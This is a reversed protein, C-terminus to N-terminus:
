ISDDCFHSSGESVQAVSRVPAPAINNVPIEPRGNAWRWVRSFNYKERDFSPVDNWNCAVRDPGVRLVAQPIQPTLSDSGILVNYHDGTYLPFL